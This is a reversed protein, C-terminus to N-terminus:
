SSDLILNSSFYISAIEMAFLKKFIKEWCIKSYIHLYYTPMRRIIMNEAPQKQQKSRFFIQM